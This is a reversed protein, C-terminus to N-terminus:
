KARFGSRINTSDILSIEKAPTYMAPITNWHFHGKAEEFLYFKQGRLSMTSDPATIPYPEPTLLSFSLTSKNAPSDVSAYMPALKKLHRYLALSALASVLFFGGVVLEPLKVKGAFSLIFIIYSFFIYGAAFRVDPASLIVMALGLVSVIVAYKKYTNSRSPIFCNILNVVATVIATIFILKEPLRIAKFFLTYKEVMSLTAITNMDTHIWREFPSYKIGIIEHQAIAAPVKWIPAVSSINLYPYIIYGSLIYNSVLYPVTIILCITIAVVMNVPQSKREKLYLLFSSLLIVSSLKVTLLYVASSCLFTIIASNRGKEEYFYLEYLMLLTWFVIVYDASPDIVHYISLLPFLLFAIALGTFTKISNNDSHLEREILFYLLITICFFGNVQNFPQDSLFRWNFVSSFLHWSSNFALRGHLNALGKVYGYQNMWEIFSAHYLGEDYSITQQASFFLIFVTAVSILLPHKKFVTLM